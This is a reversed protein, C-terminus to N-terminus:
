KREFHEFAILAAAKAPEIDQNVFQIQPAFQLIKRETEAAVLGNFALISGAKVIPISKDGLGLKEMVVKAMQALDTAAQKIILLAHADGQQGAQEVLLALRAVDTKNWPKDYVTIYLQELSTIRLYNFVLDTLITPKLRGDAAAVIAKLAQNGIWFGSGEDSLWYDLGGAKAQQGQANHGYCVSGTGSVIVIAEKADTGARLAAEADNVILPPTTFVSRLYEDSDIAAQWREVDKAFNVGSLAFCGFLKDYTLGELVQEVASKLHNFARKFGVANINTPPSPATAITREWHDILVAKTQTAGGDIGLFFRVMAM